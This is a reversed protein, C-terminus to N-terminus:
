LRGWILHHLSHRIHMGEKVMELYLELTDIRSGRPFGERDMMKEHRIAMELGKTLLLKRLDLQM